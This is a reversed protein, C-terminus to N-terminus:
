VFEGCQQCRSFEPKVLNGCKSCEKMNEKVNERELTREELGRENSPMVLLCILAFPGMLFFSLLVWVAVERGRYYAAIGTVIAFLAWSYLPFLLTWFNIANMPEM